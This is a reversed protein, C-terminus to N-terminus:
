KQFQLNLIVIESITGIRYQPGSLGLGSSVYCHTDEKKKYGHGLEYMTNILLNAPFLQGNHTHGYLALDFIDPDKETM